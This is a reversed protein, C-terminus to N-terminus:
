ILKFATDVTGIAYPDQSQVTSSGTSVTISQTDSIGSNYSCSTLIITALVFLSYKM